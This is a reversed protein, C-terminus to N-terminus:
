QSGSGGVPGGVNIVTMPAPPTSFSKYYREMANTAAHAPMGDVSKDANNLAAAPDRTQRAKLTALSEGLRADAQPSTAACGALVAVAVISVCTTKSITM